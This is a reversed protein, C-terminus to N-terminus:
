KKMLIGITSQITGTKGKIQWKGDLSRNFDFAAGDMNLQKAHPNFGTNYLPQPSVRLDDIIAEAPCEGSNMAGIQAAFNVPKVPLAADNPKGWESVQSASLRGDLYIEM